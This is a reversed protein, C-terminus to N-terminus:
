GNDSFISFGFGVYVAAYLALSSSVVPYNDSEILHMGEAIEDFDYGGGLSDFEKIMEIITESVTDDAKSKALALIKAKHKTYFGSMEDLTSWGKIKTGREPYRAFKWLRWNSFVRTYNNVFDDWGGYQSIVANILEKDIRLSVSNDLYEIFNAKNIEIIPKKM